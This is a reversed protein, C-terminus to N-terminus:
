KQRTGQADVQQCYKTTTDGMEESVGEFEGSLEARLAANEEKKLGRLMKKAAIQVIELKKGGKADRQLVEGVYELKPVIIDM